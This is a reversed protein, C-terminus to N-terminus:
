EKYKWIFGYATKRNGMCVDTIHRSYKQGTLEVMAYTADEISKYENVYNGNKDYQIVSKSTVDDFVVEINNYKAINRIIDKCCGVENVIEKYTKGQIILKEIQEYDWFPKGSGGYTDNYGNKYSDYQSIYLQEYFDADKDECTDIVYIHLKDFGFENMAKYLSRNKARDRKSERKHESWRRKIGHSTVGIYVKDNFDNSIMYIEKM